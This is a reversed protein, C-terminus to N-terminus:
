ATATRRRRIWRTASVIIGAMLVLIAIPLELILLVGFAPSDSDSFWVQGLIPLPLSLLMLLGGLIPRRLIFLLLPAGIYILLHLLFVAILLAQSQIVM